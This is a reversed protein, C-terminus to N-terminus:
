KEVQSIQKLTDAKTKLREAITADLVKRKQAFSTKVVEISQEISKLNTILFLNSEELNLFINVLQAPDKFYM